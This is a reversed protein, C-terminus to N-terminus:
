NKTISAEFYHKYVDQQGKKDDRHHFMAGALSTLKVAWRASDVKSNPTNEENSGPKEAECKDHLAPPPTSDLEEWTQSMRALGGKVANLGKHMACGTWVFFDISDKEKDTLENLAHEGLGLIM